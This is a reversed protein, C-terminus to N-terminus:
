KESEHPMRIVIYSHRSLWKCVPMLAAKQKNIICTPMMKQKSTNRVCIIIECVEHKGMCILNREEPGESIIYLPKVTNRCTVTGQISLFLILTALICFRCSCSKWLDAMLKKTTQKTKQVTCKWLQLFFLGVFHV